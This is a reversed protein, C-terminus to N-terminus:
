SFNLLCLTSGGESNMGQLCLNKSCNSFMACVPSSTSLHFHLYSIKILARGDWRFPSPLYKMGQEAPNWANPVMLSITRMKELCSARTQSIEYYGFRSWSERGCVVFGSVEPTLLDSSWRSFTTNKKRQDLLKPMNFCLELPNFYASFFFFAVKSSISQLNISIKIENLTRVFRNQKCHAVKIM